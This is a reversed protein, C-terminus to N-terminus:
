EMSFNNILDWVPTENVVDSLEGTERDYYKVPVVDGECKSHGTEVVVGMEGCEHRVENGNGFDKGAQNEAYLPCNVYHWKACGCNCVLKEKIKSESLHTM